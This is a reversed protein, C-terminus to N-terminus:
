VCMCMNYSLFEPLRFFHKGHAVLESPELSNRQRPESELETLRADLLDINHNSPTSVDKCSLSVSALSDKLESIIRHQEDLDTEILELRKRLETRRQLVMKFCKADGGETDLKRRFFIHFWKFLVNMVPHLRSM